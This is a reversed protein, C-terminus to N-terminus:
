WTSADGDVANEAVNGETPKDHKARVATVEAPIMCGELLVSPESSSDLNLDPADIEIANGKVEPTLKRKVRLPQDGDGINFGDGGFVGDYRRHPADEGEEEEDGGEERAQWKETITREATTPADFAEAM